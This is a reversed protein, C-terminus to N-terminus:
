PCSGGVSVTVSTISDNMGSADPWTDQSLDWADYSLCKSQGSDNAVTIVTGDSIHISSTTYGFNLAVLDYTGSETFTQSAGACYADAFLTVGAYTVGPCGTQEPTTTSTAAPTFTATPVNPVWGNCNTDAFLRLSEVNDNMPNGNDFTNDWFDLDNDTFCQGGGAGNYDSHFLVSYGSQIGFSSTSNSNCGYDSVNYVGTNTFVCATGVFNADEYLTLISAPIATPTNTSTSTVTPTFTATPVIPTWGGCNSNYFVEVNVINDEILSGNHYTDGNLYPDSSVVCSKIGSQNSVLASWGDMVGISSVDFSTFSYSSIGHWGYSQGSYNGNEWVTVTDGDALGYSLQGSCDSNEFVQVSSLVDNANAGNDLTAHQLEDVTHNFCRKGGLGNAHEYIMISFGADVDICSVKDELYDAVQLIGATANDWGYQMNQCFPDERIDVASNGYQGNSGGGVYEDASQVAVGNEINNGIGSCNDNNFVQVWSIMNSADSYQSAPDWGIRMAPNGSIDFYFDVDTNWMDINWCRNFSILDNADPGMLVSRNGNYGPANRMYISRTRNDFGTSVLSHIQGDAPIYKANGQCNKIDFLMVPTQNNDWWGPCDVFINLPPGWMYGDQPNSTCGGGYVTENTGDVGQIQLPDFSYGPQPYIEWHLHDGQSTPGVNGMLGILQGKGVNQGNTVYIKVMHGYYNGMENNEIQVLGQSPDVLVVTGNGSSYIPTGVDSAGNVRNIDMLVQGDQEGFPEHELGQYPCDFRTIEYINQSVSGGVLPTRYASEDVDIVSQAETQFVDVVSWVSLTFLLISFALLIRLTRIDKM